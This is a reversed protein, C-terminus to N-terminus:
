LAADLVARHEDVDLQSEAAIPNALLVASRLDLADRARVVAAAEEPTEVRAPVPVGADRVYFGPFADTRYGLVAVNLTELRELTAPVDLISKVGASVVLIPTAALAPLDASEDVSTGAGPHVGGLGGTAFVAIGARHALLATAAVTTGGSRGKAMTVPLDRVSVKVAEDTRALWEIQATSLGVVPSGDVVGITAPVVESDRLAREAELAVQLNRPRPLGHTFITSELAVVARAQAVAARVEDSVVVPSSKM